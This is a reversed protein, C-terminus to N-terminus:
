LHLFLHFFAKAKMPIDKISENYAELRVKQLTTTVTDQVHNDLINKM